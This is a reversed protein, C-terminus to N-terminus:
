GVIGERGVLLPLTIAVAMRRSYQDINNAVLRDCISRFDVQFGGDIGRDQRDQRTRRGILRRERVM